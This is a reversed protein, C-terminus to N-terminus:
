PWREQWDAPDPPEEDPHPMRRANEYGAAARVTTTHTDPRSSGRVAIHPHPDAKVRPVANWPDGPHLWLCRQCPQKGPNLLRWLAEVYRAQADQRATDEEETVPKDGMHILDHWQAQAELLPDLNICQPPCLARVTLRLLEPLRPDDDAYDRHLEALCALVSAADASV